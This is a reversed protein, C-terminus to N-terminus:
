SLYRQVIELFINENYRGIYEDVGAEKCRKVAVEISLVRERVDERDLDELRYFCYVLIPKQGFQPMQRLLRIVDSSPVGDMLVDMVLIDPEMRVAKAVAESGSVAWQSEYDKKKLSAAMNEAIDREGGAVLIKPKHTLRQSVNATKFFKEFSLVIDDFQMPWAALYRVGSEQPILEGAAEAIFLAPMFRGISIERLRQWFEKQSPVTAPSLFVLDMQIDKLIEFAAEQGITQFAQYGSKRLKHDFERRFDANKDIILIKKHEAM